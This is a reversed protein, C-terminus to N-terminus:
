KQFGRYHYTTGRNKGTKKLNPFTNLIKQAQYRSHLHLFKRCQANTISPKILLFYDLLAQIHASVSTQQCRPCLWKGYKREMALHDCQPCRVGTQIEAQKIALKNMLDYNAPKHQKILENSLSNMIKKSMCNKHIHTEYHSMRLYLQNSTFIHQYHEPNGNIKLITHPDSFIIFSHIPFQPYGNKGLWQKIQMEHHSAQVTPCAYGRERGDVIHIMQRTSEEFIVKERFNKISLLLMGDQSILITDIQFYTGTRNKLRLDNLILYNNPNLLSLHYDVTKEGHYGALRTKYETEIEKRNWHNESVRKMIAEMKKLALPKTRSKMIM